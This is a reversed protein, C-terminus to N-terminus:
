QVSDKLHFYDTVAAGFAKSRFVGDGAELLRDLVSNIFNFEVYPDGFVPCNDDM